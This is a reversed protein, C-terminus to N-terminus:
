TREESAGGSFKELGKLSRALLERREEEPLGAALMRAIQRTEEPDFLVHMKRILRVLNWLGDEVVKGGM